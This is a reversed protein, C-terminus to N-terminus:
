YTMRKNIDLKVDALYDAIMFGAKGTGFIHESEYRGHNLQCEIKQAIDERDYDAYIVNRGHERGEQRNGIIVSPTGLFSAERIFSSSNGVLCVANELFCNYVEPPFNKFYFFNENEHRDKFSRIGLSVLNSGADINPWLVMKQVPFKRLANLTEMIQKRGDMYESTVPHQTVLIFPKSLDITVNARKKIFDRCDELELKDCLLTDISPCGTVRIRWEEEGMKRIRQGSEETAPFHYHALKTIAHRVSEDINGTIEGGQIHALPINLYSAAIATAMTEFRDAVTIVVDPALEQFVSSLEIIGMGTSKAQTALNEGELMYYVEKLPTFGDKRLVDVAKGYRDLLMSAGVVIQLELDPHKQIATLVPKVRGYNARSAVVVCIKRM